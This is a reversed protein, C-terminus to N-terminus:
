WNLLGIQGKGLNQFEETSLFPKKGKGEQVKSVSYVAACM